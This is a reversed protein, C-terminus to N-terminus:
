AAGKTLAAMMKERKARESKKEWDAAPISTLAEIALRLTPVPRATGKLWANVSPQKVGLANGIATQSSDNDDIWKKLAKAAPTM